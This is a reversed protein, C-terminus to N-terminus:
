GRQPNKAAEALAKIRSELARKQLAIVKDYNALKDKPIQDRHKQLTVLRRHSRARMERLEQISHEQSMQFHYGL